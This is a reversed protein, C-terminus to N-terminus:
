GKSANLEDWESVAGTYIANLQETSIDKLPNDANVVVAIKDRAIMEYDLLEAEYEKLDRSAMGLDYTGNMAGNLGDASDTAEVTIQANPNYQMYAEALNEMLPAVSTSGGLTISGETKDSLFSSSKAIAEYNQQVLEQGAGTVYELFDQELESLEGSYAIYFSRTLPYNKETDSIGDVDLIGCDTDDTLVGSSVYGIANPQEQVTRLIEESSDKIVADERTADSQDGSATDFGLLEAFATRTGSGDERSLVQITGLTDLGEVPQAAATKSSGCGSAAALMCAALVVGCIQKRNM